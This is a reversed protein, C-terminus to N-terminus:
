RTRQDGTYITTRMLTNTKKKTDPVGQEKRDKESPPNERLWIRDMRASATRTKKEKRSGHSRPGYQKVLM